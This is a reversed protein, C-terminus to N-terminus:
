RSHGQKKARARKAYFFQSQCMKIVSNCLEKQLQEKEKRKDDETFRATVVFFFPPVFTMM